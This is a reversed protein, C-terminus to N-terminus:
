APPRNVPRPPKPAGPVTPKPAGPQPQGAPKKPDNTPPIAM